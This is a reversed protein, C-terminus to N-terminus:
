RAEEALTMGGGVLVAVTINYYGSFKKVNINSKSCDFFTM